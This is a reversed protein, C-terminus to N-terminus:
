DVSLFFVAIVTRTVDTTGDLYQAGSDLLLLLDRPSKAGTGPKTQHNIQPQNPLNTQNTPNTPQNTSTFSLPSASM